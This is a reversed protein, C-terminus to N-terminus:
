SGKPKVATKLKITNVLVRKPIILLMKSRKKVSMNFITLDFVINDHHNITRKDVQVIFGGIVFEDNVAIDGSFKQIEDYEVGDIEM